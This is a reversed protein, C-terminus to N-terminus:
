GGGASQNTTLTYSHAAEGEKKCRNSVRPGCVHQGRAEVRTEDNRRNDNEKAQLERAVARDALAGDEVPPTVLGCEVRCIDFARREIDHRVALWKARLGPRSCV